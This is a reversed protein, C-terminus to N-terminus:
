PCINDRSSLCYAGIGATVSAVATFLSFTLLTSIRSQPLEKQQTMINHIDELSKGTQALKSIIVEDKMKKEAFEVVRKLDIPSIVVVGSDDALIIDNPRIKAGGLTIDSQVAVVKFAKNSNHIAKATAFVPFGVKIISSTDRVGGNTIVGLLGRAKAAISVLEGWVGAKSIDGTNEIVLIHDKPVADMVYRNFEYLAPREDQLNAYQATYVSGCLTMTSDLPQIGPITRDEIKLKLFADAVLETRMKKLRKILDQHPKACSKEIKELM